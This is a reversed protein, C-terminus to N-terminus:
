LEIATEGGFTASAELVQKFTKSTDVIIEELALMEMIDKCEIKKGNILDNISFKVEMAARSLAGLIGSGRDEMNTYLLMEGMKYKAINSKEEDTVEVKATVSFKAKGTLSKSQDRILVLKM